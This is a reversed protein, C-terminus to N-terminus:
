PRRSFLFNWQGLYKKILLNVSRKKWWNWLRLMFMSLHNLTTLYLKFQIPLPNVVLFYCKTSKTIDISSKWKLTNPKLSPSIRCPSLASLWNMSLTEPFSSTLTLATSYWESVNSLTGINVAFVSKWWRTSRKERRIWSPEQPNTNLLKTVKM